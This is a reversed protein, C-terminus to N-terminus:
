PVLGSDDDVYKNGKEFKELAVSAMIDSPKISYVGEIMALREDMQKQKTYLQKRVEIRTDEIHEIRRFFEQSDIRYVLGGHSNCTATTMRNRNEIVDDDGFM